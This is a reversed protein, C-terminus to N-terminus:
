VKTHYEVLTDADISSFLSFFIFLPLLFHLFLIILTDIDDAIIMLFISILRFYIILLLPM